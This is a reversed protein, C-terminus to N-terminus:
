SRADSRTALPSAPAPLAVAFGSLPQTGREAVALHVSVAGNFRTTRRTPAAFSELGVHEPSRLTELDFTSQATNQERRKVSRPHLRRPAHRPDLHAAVRLATEHRTVPADSPHHRHLRRSSSAWRRFCVCGGFRRLRRSGGVDGPSAPDISESAPADPYDLALMAPALKSRSPISSTCTSTIPTNPYCTEIPRM